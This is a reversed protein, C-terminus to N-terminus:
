FMTQLRVCIKAKIIYLIHYLYRHIIHYLKSISNTSLENSARLPQLEAGLSFKMFTKMYQILPGRVGIYFCENHLM